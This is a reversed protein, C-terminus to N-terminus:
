WSRLRRVDDRVTSVLAFAFTSGIFFLIMTAFPWLPSERFATDPEEGFWVRATAGSFLIAEVLVPSTLYRRQDLVVTPLGLTTATTQILAYQRADRYIRAPGLGLRTAATGVGLLVPGSDSDAGRSSGPPWERFGGLGVVEASYAERYREYLKAGDRPAFQAMYFTMASLASGRPFDAYSAKKDLTPLPLGTAEDKYRSEMVRLWGKILNPSLEKKHVRDYLAVSALLVAQDAPWKYAGERGKLHAPLPYSRAHFDGDALSEAVLHRTIRGHLRDYRDGRTIFKHVGLVIGTHALYLNHDGLKDVEDLHKNYPSITTSLVRRALEEVAPILAERRGEDASAVNMLGMAMHSLAVAGLRTEMVDYRSYGQFPENLHEQIRALQAEAEPTIPVDLDQVWGHRIAQWWPVLVFAILACLAATRLLATLYLSKPKPRRQM